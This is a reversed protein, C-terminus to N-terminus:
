TSSPIESSEHLTTVMKKEVKYDGVQSIAKTFPIFSSSTNKYQTANPFSM